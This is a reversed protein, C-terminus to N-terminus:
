LRIAGAGVKRAITLRILHGPRVSRDRASLIVAEAADNFEDLVCGTVMVRRTVLGAGADGLVMIGGVAAKGTQDDGIRVCAVLDGGPLVAGGDGGVAHGAGVQQLRFDVREIHVGDAM